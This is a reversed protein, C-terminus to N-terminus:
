NLYFLIFFLYGFLFNVSFLIIKKSFILLRSICHLEIKISGKNQLAIRQLIVLMLYTIDVVTHTCVEPFLIM